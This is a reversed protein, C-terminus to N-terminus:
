DSRLDRRHHVGSLRLRCLHGMIVGESRMTAPTRVGLFPNRQLRGTAARSWNVVLMVSIAIQAFAFFGAMLIAQLRELEM